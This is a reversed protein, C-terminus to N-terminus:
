DTAFPAFEFRMGSKKLRETLVPGFATAPTLVGGESPLQDRNQVLALCSEALMKSTSAYGPDCNDAVITEYVRGEVEAFFHITFYGNTRQKESPGEGPQPLRKWIQHRVWRSSTMAAMLIGLGVTIKTAMWFGKGGKPFGMVESYEFDEGYPFEQLAHSRRVIKTNTGAMIFPGTWRHVMKDYRLSMQDRGDPGRYKKDPNLSYPNALTRLVSRDDAIADLMQVMSAVTGGSLGGKMKGTMAQIKPAFVGEREHIQNQLFQVGLDSPISDFGCAHVIRVGKQTATDHHRDIQARVFPSEGTLDCYDTGEDLCIDVLLQGYKSYPGVTTCIVRTQQVMTRLSPEDFADAIFIPVGLELEELLRNCKEENRGGIAVKIDPYNTCLYEIVLRGTFGTAGWVVIDFPRDAIPIM